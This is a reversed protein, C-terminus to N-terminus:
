PFDEVPVVTIPHGGGVPHLEGIVFLTYAHNAQFQFTPDVTALIANSSDVITLAPTTNLTIGSNYHAGNFGSTAAYPVSNTGTNDSGSLAAGNSFLTINGGVDPVLNIVRFAVTGAQSGVFTSPFSDLLRIMQPTTIGSGGGCIGTAVLTYTGTNNSSNVDHPNLDVSATALAGTSMGTPFVNYNLGTGARISQYNANSAPTAAPSFAGYTVNTFTPTLGTQTFDVGTPCNQLANFSRVRATSNGSPGISNSGSCGSLVALVLALLGAKILPGIRNFKM